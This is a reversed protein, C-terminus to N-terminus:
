TDIVPDPVFAALEPALNDKHFSITNSWDKLYNLSYDAENQLVSRDHASLSNDSSLVDQLYLYRYLEGMHEAQLHNTKGGIFIISSAIEKMEFARRLFVRTQPNDVSPLGNAFYDYYIELDSYQKTSDATWWSYASKDIHAPTLPTISNIRSFNTLVRRGAKHNKNRVFIDMPDAAYQSFIQQLPVADPHEKYIKDLAGNIRPDPRPSASFLQTYKIIYFALEKLDQRIVANAEPSGM